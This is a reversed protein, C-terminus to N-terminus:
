VRTVEGHLGKGTPMLTPVCEGQFAQQVYSTVAADFLEPYWMGFLAVRIRTM